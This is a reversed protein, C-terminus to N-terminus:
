KLEEDFQQFASHLQAFHHRDIGFDGYWIYEFQRTLRRFAVQVTGDHLEAVYAANTKAPQWDILGADSLKKLSDLYLLRVALRYNGTDIAKQLETAFDIGHITEAQETFPLDATRRKRSFLGIADMGLLRVILYVLAAVGAVVIIKKLLQYSTERTLLDALRDRVWQKLRQWWSLDIPQEDYQFEVRSKYDELSAKNFQHLQIASTSDYLVPTRTSDVAGMGVSGMLCSLLGVIYRLKWM